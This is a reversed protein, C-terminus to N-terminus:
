PPSGEGDERELRELDALDDLLGEEDRESLGTSKRAAMMMGAAGPENRKMEQLRLAQRRREDLSVIRTAQSKFSAVGAKADEMKRRACEATVNEVVRRVRAVAEEPSSGIDRLEQSAEEESMGLIDDLIADELLAEPSKAPKGPTTM